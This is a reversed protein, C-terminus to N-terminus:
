KNKLEDLNVIPRVSVSRDAHPITCKMLSVKDEESYDRFLNFDEGLFALPIIFEHETANRSQAHSELHLSILLNHYGMRLPGPM